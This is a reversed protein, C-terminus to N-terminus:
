DIQKGAVMSMWGGVELEIGFSFVCLLNWLEGLAQCHMGAVHKDGSCM